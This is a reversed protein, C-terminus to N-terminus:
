VLQQLRIQKKNTCCTFVSSFAKFVPVALFFAVMVSVPVQVDGFSRKGIEVTSSSNAPAPMSGSMDVEDNVEVVEVSTKETDDNTDDSAVAHVVGRSQSKPSAVGSQKRKAQQSANHIANSEKMNRSAIAGTKTVGEGLRGRM